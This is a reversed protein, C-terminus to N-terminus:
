VPVPQSQIGCGGLLVALGFGVVAGTVVSGTQRSMNLSSFVNSRKAEREDGYIRDKNFQKNEQSELTREVIYGVAAGFGLSGAGIVVAKALVM